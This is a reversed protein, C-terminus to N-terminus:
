PNRSAMASHSSTLCMFKALDLSECVFKDKQSFPVPKPLAVLLGFIRPRRAWGEFYAMIKTPRLLTEAHLVVSALKEARKCYEHLQVRGCAVAKNCSLM